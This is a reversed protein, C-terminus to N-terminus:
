TEKRKLDCVYPRPCIVCKRYTSDYIHTHCTLADQSYGDKLENCFFQSEFIKHVTCLM